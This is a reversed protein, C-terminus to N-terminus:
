STEVGREIQLSIDQGANHSQSLHDFLSTNIGGQIVEKPEAEKGEGTHFLPAASKTVARTPKRIRGKRDIRHKIVMLASEPSTSNSMPADPSRFTDPFQPADPRKEDRQGNDAEFDDDVCKVILAMVNGPSCLVPFAAQAASESEFLGDALLSRLIKYTKESDM